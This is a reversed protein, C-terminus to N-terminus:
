GAIPVWDNNAEPDRLKIFWLNKFTQMDGAILKKQEVGSQKRVHGIIKQADVTSHTGVNILIPLVHKPNKKGHEGFNQKKDYSEHPKRM